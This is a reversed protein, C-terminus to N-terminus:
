YFGVKCNFESAREVFDYLGITENGVKVITKISTSPSILIEVGNLARKKNFAIYQINPPFIILNFAKNNSNCIFKTFLSDVKFSGLTRDLDCIVLDRVKCYWGRSRVTLRFYKNLKDMSMENNLNAEFSSTIRSMNSIDCLTKNNINIAFRPKKYKLNYVMHLCRSNSINGLKIAIDNYKGGLVNNDGDLIPTKGLSVVRDLASGKGLYVIINNKINTYMDREYYRGVHSKLISNNTISKKVRDLDIIFDSLSVVDLIRFGIVKHYELSKLDKWKCQSDPEKLRSTLSVKETDVVFGLLTLFEINLNVGGLLSFAVSGISQQM